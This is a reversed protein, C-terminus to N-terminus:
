NIWARVEMGGVLHTLLFDGTRKKVDETPHWQKAQENRGKGIGM